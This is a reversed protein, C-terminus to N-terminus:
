GDIMRQFGFQRRFPVSFGASKRTKFLYFSQREKFIPAGEMEGPAQDEFIATIGVGVTMNRHMTKCESITSADVRAKNTALTPHGQAFAVVIINYKRALDALKDATLQYIFRIVQADNASLSGLAGGIWDFILWDLRGLKKKARRIEEELDVLISKSRDTLWDLIYFKGNIKQMFEQYRDYQTANLLAPDFKDVIQNFPINCFNSLVRVELEEHPQETTILVGYQKAIALDGALQTALVTKGSGSAAVILVAEKKGLGGGLAKSLSALSIKVREVDLRKTSIGHGFEFLSEGANAAQIPDTQTLVQSLIEDPKWHAASTASRMTRVTRVKKLWYGFGSEALPLAVAVPNETQLQVMRMVATEVEDLGILDAQRAMNTLLVRSFDATMPPAEIGVCSKYTCLAKYIANDMKTDFESVFLGKIPDMCLVRHCKVFFENDTMLCGLLMGEFWDTHSDVLQEVADQQADM